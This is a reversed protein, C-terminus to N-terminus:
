KFNKSKIELNERQLEYIGNLNLDNKNLMINVYCNPCVNYSKKNIIINEYNNENKNNTCNNCKLYQPINCNSM